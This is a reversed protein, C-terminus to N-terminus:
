FGNWGILPVQKIIEHLMLLKIHKIVYHILYPANGGVRLSRASKSRINLVHDLHHCMLLEVIINFMLRKTWCNGLIWPSMAGSRRRWSHSRSVSGV